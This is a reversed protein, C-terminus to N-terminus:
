FAERINIIVGIGDDVWAIDARVNFRQEPNLAYRIGSGISTKTEKLEMDSFEEAVQAFEAFVTGSFKGYIPFRYESQMSVMQYDKYRGNEIGRLINTGDPTALYSFPVDGNTSKVQTALAIVSEKIFNTRTYYRLDFTQIDFDMSSGIDQDYSMYEYRSLVGKAPANTNDRTDYGFAFGAGIYEGDEAGTINGSDLMGGTEIDMDTKEYHGLLDVIFSKLYRGEVSLSAGHNTSDYEEHIDPSNNGIQYYNAQWYNGYFSASVRYKGDGLFINPSVSLAYQGETTGYVMMDITSAQQDPEETQFFHFLMGGLMLGTEPSSAIIPFAAWRQQKKEKALGQPSDEGTTQAQDGEIETAIPVAPCATSLLLTLSFVIAVPKIQQLIKTNM